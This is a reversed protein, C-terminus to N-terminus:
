NAYNPQASICFKLLILHLCAFASRLRALVAAGGTQGVATTPTGNAPMRTTAPTPRSTSTVATTSAATPAATAAFESGYHRETEKPAQNEGAPITRGVPVIEEPLPAPAAAYPTTSQEEPVSAQKPFNQSFAPTPTVSPVSKDTAPLADQPKLRQAEQKAFATHVTQDKPTMQVNAPRGKSTRSPLLFVAGGVLIIASLVTALSPFAVLVVVLLVSALAIAQRPLGAPMRDAM